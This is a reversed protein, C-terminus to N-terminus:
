EAMSELDHLEHATGIVVLTDGADIKTVGSPHLEFNGRSKKVALVTAGTKRKIELEGITKGAFKSDKDVSVEEINHEAKEGLMMTDIFDVTVPNLAMSAMRQGAIFYPSIVRDAGAKKLKKESEMFSARAVIYLKPNLVRASLTVFVNTVDSDSAAVLGKASRIGAAELAEDSSADGIIYPTDFGNLEQVMESKSDIVVFPIKHGKFSKAVEHGVRGYGCIIYHGKFERIKKEMRKRRRYGVIQGEVVIEIFQGVTYAVTGIGTLIICITLIKGATNFQAVERFGVTSLTIVVMYIADLLSTRELLTYGMVGFVMIAILICIPIILRAFPNIGRLPNMM